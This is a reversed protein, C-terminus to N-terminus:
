TGVVGDSKSGAIVVGLVRCSICLTKSYDDAEYAFCDTLPKLEAKIKAPDKHRVIGLAFPERYLTLGSGVEAKWGDSIGARGAVGLM